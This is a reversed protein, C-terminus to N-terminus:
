RRARRQCFQVVDEATLQFREGAVCFSTQVDVLMFDGHNDINPVHLRQRSKLARLGVRAAARRARSDIAHETMATGTEQDALTV